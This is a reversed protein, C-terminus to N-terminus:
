GISSYLPQSAFKTLWLSLDSELKGKHLVPSFFTSVEHSQKPILYALMGISNIDNNNNDGGGNNNNEEFIQLSLNHKLDYSYKTWLLRNEIFSVNKKIFCKSSFQM